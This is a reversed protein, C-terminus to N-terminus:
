FLLVVTCVRFFNCFCLSLVFFMCVYTKLSRWLKYCLLGGGAVGFERQSAQSLSFCPLLIGLFFEFSASM